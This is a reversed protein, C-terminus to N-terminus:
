RGTTVFAIVTAASAFALIALLVLLARPNGFNLTWGVGFRREVFVSPDNRNIYITGLVWFRDNTRDTAPAEPSLRAGGQGTRLSLVLTGVLVLLLFGLPVLVFVSPLGMGSVASYGIGIAILGMLALIGVKLVFLFRLWIRRFRAEAEGPLARSRVILVGLLTILVELSLQTWVLAFYSAISKTAYGNPHGAADFHTPFTAPVSPYTAALYAVTGGIILLPLLEWVWPIYDGYRRPRLEASPRETATPAAVPPQSLALRRTAFYAWLYPLSTLLLVGIAAFPSAILAADAPLLRWLAGLAALGLVTLVVMMVRYRAIISRGASTARTDPAVTVGFLLDRRTLAPQAVGYVAVFVLILAFTGLVIVDANM